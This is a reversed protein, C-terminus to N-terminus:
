VNYEIKLLEKIYFMTDFKALQGSEIKSINTKTISLKDALEQQTWGKAKRGKKVIKGIAKFKEEQTM